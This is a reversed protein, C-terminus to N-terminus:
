VLVKILDGDIEIPYSEISCEPQTLCAGNALDFRWGHLDCEVITGDLRADALPTGRHPCFNEIAFYEGEVNFLAIEGGSKLQITAGRGAPLAGLRAVSIKNGTLKPKRKNELHKDTM